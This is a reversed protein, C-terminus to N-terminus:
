LKIYTVSTRRNSTIIDYLGSLKYYSSISSLQFLNFLSVLRTLSEVKCSVLHKALKTVQFSIPSVNLTNRWNFDIHGCHTLMTSNIVPNDHKCNVAKCQMHVCDYKIVLSLLSNHAMKKQINVLKFEFLCCRVKNM